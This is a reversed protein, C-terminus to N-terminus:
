PALHDDSACRIATLDLTSPIHVANQTQDLGEGTAGQVMSEGDQGMRIHEPDQYKIFGPSVRGHKPEILMGFIRSISYDTTGADLPLNNANHPPPIHLPSPPTMYTLLSSLLQQNRTSRPRSKHTTSAPNSHEFERIAEDAFVDHSDVWQNESDPYGKWKVLYQLKQRRGFHWSDLIKEVKYEEERNVLKPPPHQYNCGHTPTKCYPTLLDTHFVPHISWQTPLKPCYNVSSM